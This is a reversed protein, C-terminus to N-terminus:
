PKFNKRHRIECMRYFELPQLGMACAYTTWLSFKEVRCYIDVKDSFNLKNWMDREFYYSYYRIGETIAYKNIKRVIKGVNKACHKDNDNELCQKLDLLDKEINETQDKLFNLVINYILNNCKSM